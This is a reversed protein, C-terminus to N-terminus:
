GSVSFEFWLAMPPYFPMGYQNLRFSGLASQFLCSFRCHSFAARLMINTCTNIMFLEICLYFRSLCDCFLLCWFFGLLILGFFFFFFHLFLILSFIKIWSMKLPLENRFRSMEYVISSNYNISTNLWVPFVVSDCYISINHWIIHNLVEKNEAEWRSSSDAFSAVILM